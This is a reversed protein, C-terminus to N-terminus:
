LGDGSTGRGAAVAQRGHVRSVRRLRERAEEATNGAAVILVECPFRCSGYLVWGASTPGGHESIVGHARM